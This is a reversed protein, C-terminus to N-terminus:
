HGRVQAALLILRQKGMTLASMTGSEARIVVKMSAKLARFTAEAQTPLGFM